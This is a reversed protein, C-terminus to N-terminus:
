KERGAKIDTHGWVCHQLIQHLQVIACIHVLLKGNFDSSAAAAAACMKSYNHRTLADATTDHLPKKAMKHEM